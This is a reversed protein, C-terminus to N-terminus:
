SVKRLSFDKVIIFTPLFEKLTTTTCKNLNKEIHRHRDSIMNQFYFHFYFDHLQAFFYNDHLQRM